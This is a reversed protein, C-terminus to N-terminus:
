LFFAPRQATVQHCAFGWLSTPRGEQAALSAGSWAGRGAVLGGGLCWNGTIVAAPFHELICHLYYLLKWLAM